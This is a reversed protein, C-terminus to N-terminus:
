LGDYNHKTSPLCFPQLMPLLQRQKPYSSAKGSLLQYLLAAKNLRNQLEPM